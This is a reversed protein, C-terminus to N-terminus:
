ERVARIAALLKNIDCNYITPETQGAVPQEHKHNHRFTPIFDTEWECAHTVDLGAQGLGLSFGGCGAFLDLCRLAVRPQSDVVRPRQKAQFVAKEADSFSSGNQHGLCYFVFKDVPVQHTPPPLQDATRSSFEVTVVAMVNSLTIMCVVDRLALLRADHPTVRKFPRVRLSGSESVSM